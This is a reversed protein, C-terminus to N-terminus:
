RGEGRAAPKAQMWQITDRLGEALGIRPQWSLEKGARTIDAVVDLVEEKRAEDISHLPKQAPLASSIETVLEAISVSRGSGANYVGGAPGTLTAILLSVLDGVHIYDRRPREDRVTIRDCGPDLAQRIITPILFQANQGPGYLNFPRVISARVGFWAGFCRVTDEALIKSHSYPNLPALPHDERIPLCRPIGYVYSSVFTLPVGRRRCFELVNATGLVNVEYFARPSEWSDPVFSRGALHLVHGVDDFDLRCRAIDGDKSSHAHVRRGERCLHQVLHSGVFGTAGTVLIAESM